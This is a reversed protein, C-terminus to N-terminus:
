VRSRKPRSQDGADRRGLALYHTVLGLAIVGLAVLAAGAGGPATLSATPLVLAGTLVTIGAVVGVRRAHRVAYGRDLPARVPVTAALAAATHLLVLCLTAPVLLLGGEPGVGITWSAVGYALTLLAMPSQPFIASLVGGVLAGVLASSGLDGALALLLTFLGTALLVLGRLLLHGWSTTVLGGTADAVRSIM